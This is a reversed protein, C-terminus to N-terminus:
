RMIRCTSRSRSSFMPFPLSSCSTACFHQFKRIPRLPSLLSSSSFIQNDERLCLEQATMRMTDLFPSNPQTAALRAGRALRALCSLFLCSLVLCCGACFSVLWIYRGGERGVWLLFCLVFGLLGAGADPSRWIRSVQGDHVGCACVSYIGSLGGCGEIWEIEELCWM